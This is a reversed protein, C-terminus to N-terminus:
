KPYKKLYEEKTMLGQAVEELDNQRDLAINQRDLAENQQRAALVQQYTYYCTASAVAATFLGVGFGLKGWLLNKTPNIHNHHHHHTERHIKLLQYSSNNNKKNESVDVGDLGEVKLILNDMIEIERVLPLLIFGLNLFFRIYLCFFGVFLAFYILLLNLFTFNVHLIINNYFYYRSVCVYIAIIFHLIIAFIKFQKFSLKLYLNEHLIYIFTLFNIKDLFLIVQKVKPLHKLLFTNDIFHHYFFPLSFLFSLFFCVSITIPWFFTILSMMFLILIMIFFTNKNMANKAAIFNKLSRSNFHQEIFQLLYKKIKTTIVLFNFNHQFQPQETESTEISLLDSGFVYM